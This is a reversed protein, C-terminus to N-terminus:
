RHSRRRRIEVIQGGPLVIAEVEVQGLAVRASNLREVADDVGRDIETEGAVAFDGHGGVHVSVTDGVDTQPHRSARARYRRLLRFPEEQLRVVESRAHRAHRHRQRLREVMREAWHRQTLVQERVKAVLERQREDAIEIRRHGCGPRRWRLRYPRRRCRIREVDVAVACDVGAVHQHQDVFHVNRM